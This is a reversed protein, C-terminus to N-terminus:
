DIMILKVRKRVTDKYTVRICVVVLSFLYIIIIKNNNNKRTYM